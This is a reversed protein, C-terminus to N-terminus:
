WAKTARSFGTNSPSQHRVPAKQVPGEELVAVARQRGLKVAPGPTTQRPDVMGIRIGSAARQDDLQSLRPPEHGGAGRVPFPQIQAREAQDAFGERAMVPQRIKGKGHLPQARTRNRKESGIRLAGPPQPQGAPLAIAAKASVSGCDPESTAAEVM